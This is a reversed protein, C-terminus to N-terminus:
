LNKGVRIFCSTILLTIQTAIAAASSVMRTKNIIVFSDGHSPQVTLKLFIGNEQKKQTRLHKLPFMKVPNRSNDLM